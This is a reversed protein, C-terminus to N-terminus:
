GARAVDHGLAHHLRRRMPKLELAVGLRRRRRDEVVHKGFLDDLGPFDVVPAHQAAEELAGSLREVLIPQDFHHAFHDRIQRDAHERPHAKRRQDGRARAAPGARAARDLFVDGFLVGMMAM